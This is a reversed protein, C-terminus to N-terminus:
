LLAALGAFALVVMGVPAVASAAGGVPIPSPSSDSTPAPGSGSGGSVSKTPVVGTAQATGSPLATSKVVAGTTAITVNKTVAASTTPAATSLPVPALSSVAGACQDLPKGEPCCIQEGKANAACFFGADCSVGKGGPCCKQNQKDFCHISEDNSPCMDFSAGCAQACTDGMGCLTQTPVYVTNNDARAEINSYGFIAEPSSNLASTAVVLCAAATISNFRM